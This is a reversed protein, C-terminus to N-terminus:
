AADEPGDMPPVQTFPRRPMHAVSDALRPLQAASLPGRISITQPYFLALERAAAEPGDSGHAVNDAVRFRSGLAARLTGGAAKMPDTAGLVTRWEAIVRRGRLAMVIVPGAVSDVLEPWYRAKHHDRYLQNIEEGTLEILRVGLMTWGMGLIQSFVLGEQQERVIHSKILAFTTEAAPGGDDIVWRTSRVVGHM